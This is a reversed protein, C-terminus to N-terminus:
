TGGFGLNRFLKRLRENELFGKGTPDLIQFAEAIPDFNKLQNELLLNKIEQQSMSDKGDLLLAIDARTVKKGLAGLKERLNKATLMKNKNNSSHNSSNFFELATAIEHETVLVGGKSNKAVKDMEIISSKRHGKTSPHRRLQKSTSNNNGGGGASTSRSM